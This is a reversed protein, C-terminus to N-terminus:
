QHDSPEMFGGLVAQVAQWFCALLRQQVTVTDTMYATCMCAEHLSLVVHDGM